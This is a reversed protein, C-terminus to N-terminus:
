GSKVIRRVFTWTQEPSNINVLVLLSSLGLKHELKGVLQSFKKSYHRAGQWASVATM